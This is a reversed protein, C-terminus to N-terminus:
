PTWIDFQVWSSFMEREQDGEDVEVENDEDDDDDFFTVEKKDKKWWLVM